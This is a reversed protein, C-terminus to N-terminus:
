TRTTKTSTVEWLIRRWQVHEHERHFLRPIYEQHKERTRSFESVGGQDDPVLTAQKLSYEIGLIRRFGKSGDTLSLPLLFDSFDHKRTGLNNMDFRGLPATRPRDPLCADTGHTHVQLSSYGCQSSGEFAISPNKWQDQQLTKVM